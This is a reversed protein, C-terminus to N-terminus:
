RGSPRELWQGQLRAAFIDGTWEAGLELEFEDERPTNEFSRIQVPNSVLAARARPVIVDVNTQRQAEKRVRRLAELVYPELPEAQRLDPTIDGWALPWTTVAARIVGADALIQIDSRLQSNGVEVWPVRVCRAPASCCCLPFQPSCSAVTIFQGTSAARM